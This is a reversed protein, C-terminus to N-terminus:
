SGRRAEAALHTPRPKAPGRKPPANMRVRDESGPIFPMAAPTPFASEAIDKLSGKRDKEDLVSYRRQALGRRDYRGWFGAKPNYYYYYRPRSPYYVMYHQKYGEDDTDQKFYYLRYWYRRMLDYKWPSYYQRAGPATQRDQGPAATTSAIILGWAITLIHLTKM